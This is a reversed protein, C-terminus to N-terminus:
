KKGSSHQQQIHDSSRLVCSYVDDSFQGKLEMPTSAQLEESSAQFYALRRKRLEDKSHATTAGNSTVPQPSQVAVHVALSGLEDNILTVTVVFLWGCAQEVFNVSVHM